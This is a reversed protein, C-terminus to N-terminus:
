ASLGRMALGAAVDWQGRRSANPATPLHRFPDSLDCTIGLHRHIAEQLVPSAEGGSLVVHGLPQGRFTVSHYRNCLSLENALRDVVPRIAEAVSRTVEPDQQEARRDGHHRRLTAASGEDMQLHAAVAEDFHKGGLEIVKIMLPDDNEAVIALTRRYGIHAFMMRRGRDADRRFQAAGCRLLALPEADVSVPQLGAQEVTQLLRDLAPRHCGLVIVERVVADLQRVDAAELYRLETEEVPYPIRGTAEQLVLRDMEAPPTKPVRINQLFLQRDSLCVVVQRGVFARGARAKEVAPRLEDATIEDGRSVLEARAVDILKGDATFQALKIWRAGIDLGIPGVRRQTLFELM